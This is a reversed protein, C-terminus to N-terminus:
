LFPLAIKVIDDVVTVFRKLTELTTVIKEIKNLTKKLEKNVAELDKTAKLFGSTNEDFINKSLKLQLGDLQKRLRDLETRNPENPLLSGRLVDLKTLVDGILKILEIQTM